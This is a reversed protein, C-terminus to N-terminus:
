ASDVSLDGNARRRQANARSSQSPLLPVAGCIVLLQIKQQHRCGVPTCLELPIRRRRIWLLLVRVAKVEAALRLEIGPRVGMAADSCEICRGAMLLPPVVPCFWHD